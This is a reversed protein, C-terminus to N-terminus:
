KGRTHRDFTYKQRKNIKKSDHMLYSKRLKRAVVTDGYHKWKTVM